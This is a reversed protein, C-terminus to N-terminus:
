EKKLEKMMCILEQELKDFRKVCFAENRFILEHVLKCNLREERKFKFKLERRSRNGLIKEILSFDTGYIELAKFFVATEKESWIKGRSKSSSYVGNDTIPESNFVDNEKSKEVVLSKDECVVEGNELVVLRPCHYVENSHKEEINPKNDNHEHLFIEKEKQQCEPISKSESAPKSTSKELIPNETPNQFVWDRICMKNESHDVGKKCFKRRKRCVSVKSEVRERTIKLNKFYPYDTVRTECNKESNTKQEDQRENIEEKVSSGTNVSVLQPLSLNDVSVQSGNKKSRDYKLNSVSNDSNINVASVSNTNVGAVFSNDCPHEVEAKPKKVTNKPMNLNNSYVPFKSRRELDLGKINPEPKFSWRRVPTM